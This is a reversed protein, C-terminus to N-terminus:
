RELSVIKGNRYVPVINISDLKCSFEIDKVFGMSLLHRAHQTKMVNECLNGRAHKFGLVAAHVKDSLTEGQFKEAIAGACIFDELSFEGKDGSLVFSVNVRRNLAIRRAERAVLEANLFSGLLVWEASRCRTIALTGSTTTIIIDKRQVDRASFGLPSNGFDFGKPKLGKREGFLLFNPHQKRIDRAERLTATPAISKHAKPWSISSQAVLGLSM